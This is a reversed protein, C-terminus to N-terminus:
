KKDAQSQHEKRDEEPDQRPRTADRDPRPREEISSSIGFPEPDDEDRVQSQNQPTHLVQRVHEVPYGRRIGRELM